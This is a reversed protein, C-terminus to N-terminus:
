AYVTFLYPPPSLQLKYAGFDGIPFASAITLPLWFSAWEELNHDLSGEISTGQSYFNPRRNTPLRSTLKYMQGGTLIWNMHKIFTRYMMWLYSIIFVIWLFSTYNLFYQAFYTGLLIGFSVLTTKLFVYDMVTYKRAVKLLRQIFKSM